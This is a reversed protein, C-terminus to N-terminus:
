TTPDGPQDPGDPHEPAHGPPLEDPEGSWQRGMRSAWHAADAAADALAAGAKLASVMAATYEKQPGAEVEEAKADARKSVRESFAAAREAGAELQPGSRVKTEEIKPKAAEYSKTVADRVTDAIRDAPSRPDNHDTM